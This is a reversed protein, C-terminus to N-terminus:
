PCPKGNVEHHMIVHDIDINYKDMLYRTLAVATNIAEETFYWDTDTPLLSKKNVKESCIEINISNQNTCIEYYKGGLSTTM